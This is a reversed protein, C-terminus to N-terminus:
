TAGQDRRCAALADDLVSGRPDDADWGAEKLRQLAPLAEPAGLAAAAEVILNGPDDDLFRLLHAIARPDHRRALGLLAEGATDGEEDDLREFLAERVAPTGVDLQSGLGMSAWDRIGPEPDRSLQMLARVVGESAPEGALNPLAIAVSYRVEVSPHSQHALVADRGRTDSM